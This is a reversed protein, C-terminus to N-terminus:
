GGAGGKVAGPMYGVLEFRTTLQVKKPASPLPRRATRATRTRSRRTRRAPRARIQLNDIFLWPKASELDYVVKQLAETDGTMQVRIAVKSFIGETAVPLIQTSVLNGGHSEVTSKIQQQLNTAALTPTSQELYYVDGSSDERLKQIEAELAPRQARIKNLKELHSQQQEINTRYHRYQAIILRDILNYLALLVLLLLAVAILRHYSEKIRLAPM